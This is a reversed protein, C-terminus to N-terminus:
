DCGCCGNKLLMVLFLIDNTALLERKKIPQLLKKLTGAGEMQEIMQNPVNSATVIFVSKWEYQSWFQISLAGRINFLLLLNMKLSNEGFVKEM